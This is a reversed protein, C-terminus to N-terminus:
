FVTLSIPESRWDCVRVNEGSFGLHSTTLFRLSAPFSRCPLRLFSGTATQLTSKALFREFLAKGQAARSEFAVRVCGVKIQRKNSDLRCRDVLLDRKVQLGRARNSRIEIGVSVRGAVRDSKM